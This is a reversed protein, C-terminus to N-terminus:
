RAESTLAGSHQGAVDITQPGVGLHRLVVDDAPM